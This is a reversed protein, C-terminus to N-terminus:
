KLAGQKLADVVPLIKPMKNRWVYYAQAAQGVLMGSGDLLKANINHQAIWNMFITNQLSYFMDYAVECNTIHKEDLAPLEDNMSSSTSNIILSYDSVPLDNFGFGSVPGYQTFLEALEKAKQATRNVIIIEQPNHELLPLIVGRAAGGAGIILIRKNTIAVKNALLDNVFGVGDTNDGLLTGDDRKKLTNVAGVIKALPTLEDAMAYAQEKFPMTVNAGVGGQEFFSSVTKEFNDIPALIARYDIQEGLSVAFQKHIAPSKSHKIPNGFVAYKDM